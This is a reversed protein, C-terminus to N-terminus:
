LLKEIGEMMFSKQKNTQGLFSRFLISFTNIVADDKIEVINM